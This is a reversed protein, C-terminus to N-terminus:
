HTNLTVYSILIINKEPDTREHLLQIFIKKIFSAKSDKSCENKPADTICKIHYM